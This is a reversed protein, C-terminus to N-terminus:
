SLRNSSATVNSDTSDQQVVTHFGIFANGTIQAGNSNSLGVGAGGCGGNKYTVTNGAVNINDAYGFDFADGYAVLNNNTVTYGSRHPGSSAGMVDVPPRCGYLAGTMTNNSFTVNGVTTGDGSGYNDLVALRVLGFTNGTININQGYEYNVDLELDVAAMNVDGLYSNRLTFGVVDTLGIGMRGNGDFHSNEVLINRAPPNNAISDPGRPDFDAEVFDGFINYAQVNDLTGGQTGDFSYAHQWEYDTGNYANAGDHVGANPNPGQVTMNELEVNSGATITWWPSNTGGLSLAKFTSGNGDITLNSRDVVDIPNSLGYCGGSAFQAIANNPVTALWNNIATDVSTSCDAAISKPASYVPVGSSTTPTPTPTATKTQTPTPTPTATPTPKVTPSPSPAPTTPTTSPVPAPANVAHGHGRAGKEATSTNHAALKLGSHPLLVPVLVGALLTALAASIMLMRRRQLPTATVYRPLVTAAAARVRSPLVEYGDPRNARTQSRTRRM